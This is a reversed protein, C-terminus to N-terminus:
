KTKRDRCKEIRKIQEDIETITDVLKWRITELTLILRDEKKLKKM